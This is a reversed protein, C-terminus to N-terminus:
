AIVGMCWRYWALATTLRRWCSVQARAPRGCAPGRGPRVPWASYVMYLLESLLHLRLKFLDITTQGTEYSTTQEVISQDPVSVNQFFINFSVRSTYLWSFQCPSTKARAPASFLASFSTYVILSLIRWHITFSTIIIFATSLLGDYVTVTNATAHLRHQLSDWLSFLLLDAAYVICYICATYVSHVM